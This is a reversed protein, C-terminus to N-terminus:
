WRPDGSETLAGALKRMASSASDSVSPGLTVLSSVLAAIEPLDFLIPQVEVPPDLRVGGARGPTVELPIGSRRLRSIDRAVTRESVHLGRALDRFTHRRRSAHLREILRQQREVRRLALHPDRSVTALESRM